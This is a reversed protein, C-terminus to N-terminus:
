GNRKHYNHSYIYKIKNDDSRFYSGNANNLTVDHFITHATHRTIYKYKYKNYKYKYMYEDKLWHSAGDSRLRIWSIDDFDTLVNKKNINCVFLYLFLGVCVCLAWKKIRTGALVRVKFINYM